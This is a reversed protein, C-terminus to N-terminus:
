NVVDAVSGRLESEFEPACVCRERSCLCYTLARQIYLFITYICEIYSTDRRYRCKVAPVLRYLREMLVIQTGCPRRSVCPPLVTKGM